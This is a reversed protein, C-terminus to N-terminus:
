RNTAGLLPLVVEARFPAHFLLPLPLVVWAWTWARGAWRRLDLGRELRMGLAHLCFYLMPGGWGAGTPASIALEHLAGSFLFAATEARRNGFTARLPRHVALATMESFALNWRRGWFEALSRAAPPNRFLPGVPAGLWRLGAAQVRFVGFHVTLSLGPLGLLCAGLPDDASIRQRALAILCAGVGINVLGPRALSWAGARPRKGLEHFPGPRMGVWAVVFIAWPGPALAAGGARVAACGVVGKMGYLLAGCLALMRLGAPQDRTLGHSALLGLGAIVWALRLQGKRQLVYGVLGLGALLSGVSWVVMQHSPEFAPRM